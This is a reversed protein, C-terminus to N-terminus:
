WRISGPSTSGSGDTTDDFMSWDISAGTLAQHLEFYPQTQPKCYDAVMGHTTGGMTLRENAIFPGQGQGTVFVQAHGYDMHASIQDGQSGSSPSSGTNMYVSNPGQNQNSASPSLPQSRGSHAQESASSPGRRSGSSGSTSFLFNPFNETLFVAGTLLGSSSPNPFM